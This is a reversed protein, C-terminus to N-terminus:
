VLLTLHVYEARDRESDFDRGCPRCMRLPQERVGDESSSWVWYTHPEGSVFPDGGCRRCREITDVEAQGHRAM